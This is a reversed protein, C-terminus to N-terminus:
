MFNVGIASLGFTEQVANLVGGLNIALAGGFLHTVGAMLSAQSNGEAVDRIIFWGRIFSIWGLIMVFALVASIVSVIHEHEEATLGADFNLIAATNSTSDGFLTTLWAGMMDDASFMAGAVLFTMITGFGGPGRPGEQASKLLRTIGIIVLVFGVFYCFLMLLHYIPKYADNMLAVVMADLGAGTPSGLFLNATMGNDNGGTMTVVVAETVIPLAFLAGAVIARKIPEWVSVQMPNQVHEITKLIAWLGIVLGFLYCLAPFIGRADQTNEIACAVVGGVTNSGCTGMATVPAIAQALAPTPLAAALLTALGFAAGVIITRKFQRNQMLVGM